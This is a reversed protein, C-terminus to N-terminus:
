ATLLSLEELVAGAQTPSDSGLENKKKVPAFLSRELTKAM